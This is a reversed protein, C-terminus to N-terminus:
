KVGWSLNDYGFLWPGITYRVVIMTVGIVFQVVLISICLQDERLPGVWVLTLNIITMNSFRVIQNLKSGREVKILKSFSLTELIALNLCSAKKLEAFSPHM